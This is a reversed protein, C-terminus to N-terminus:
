LLDTSYLQWIFSNSVDEVTLPYNTISVPTFVSSTFTDSTITPSSATLPANLTIARALATRDGTPLLTEAGTALM